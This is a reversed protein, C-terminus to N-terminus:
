ADEFMVKLRPDRRLRALVNEKIRYIEKVSPFAGPDRRCLEAPKLGLVYCAYLVAYEQGGGCLERVIGWLQDRDIGAVVQSEVGADPLPARESLEVQASVVAHEAARMHDVIVSHVCMQLYRLVQKLESCPFAPTLSSSLREFARNVFYARDEGSSVYSPHREVWRGVLPTYRQYICEWAREDRERLARRFLEFCYRPNADQRRLFRETERACGQDLESLTLREPQFPEEM